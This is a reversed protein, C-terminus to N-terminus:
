ACVTGVWVKSAVRGRAVLVLAIGDGLPRASTILRRRDDLAFTPWNNINTDADTISGDIYMPQDVVGHLKASLVCQQQEVVSLYWARRRVAV